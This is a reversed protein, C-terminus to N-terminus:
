QKVLEQARLWVLDDLNGSISALLKNADERRSHATCSMIISFCVMVFALTAMGLHEGKWALLNKFLLVFQVLALSTQVWIEWTAQDRVRLLHLIM